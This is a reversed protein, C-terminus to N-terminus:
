PFAVNLNQTNGPGGRVMRVKHIQEGMVPEPDLGQHGRGTTGEGGMAVAEGLRKRARAQGQCDPLFPGGLCLSLGPLSSPAAHPQRGLFGPASAAAEQKQNQAGLPCGGRSDFPLWVATDRTPRARAGRVQLRHLHFALAPALGSLPAM